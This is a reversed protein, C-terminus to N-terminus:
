ILDIIKNIDELSSNIQSNDIQQDYQLNSMKGGYQILETHEPSPKIINIKSGTFIEYVFKLMDEKNQRESLKKTNKEIYGQVCNASCFNGNPKILLKRKVNDVSLKGNSSEISPEISIPEFWPKNKFTRTCRWCQLTTSKPWNDLTTFMTPIKDYVISNFNNDISLMIKEQFMDEITACDSKYVDPLFLIENQTKKYKLKDDM